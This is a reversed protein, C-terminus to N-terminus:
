SDGIFIISKEFKTDIEFNYDAADMRMHCFNHYKSQTFSNTIVLFDFSQGAHIPLTGLKPPLFLITCM